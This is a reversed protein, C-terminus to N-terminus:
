AGTMLLVMHAADPIATRARARRTRLPRTRTRQGPDRERAQEDAHDCAATDGDGRVDGVRTRWTVSPHPRVFRDVAQDGFVVARCHERRLELRDRREHTVDVCQEEVGCSSRGGGGPASVRAHEPGVARGGDRQHEPRAVAPVTPEDRRDFRIATAGPGVIEDGREDGEGAVDAALTILTTILDDSGISPSRPAHCRSGTPTM